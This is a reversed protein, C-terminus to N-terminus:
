QLRILIEVDGSDMSLGAAAQYRAILGASDTVTGSSKEVLSALCEMQLRELALETGAVQARAKGCIDRPLGDMGTKLARRVKRLPGTIGSRFADSLRLAETMVGAPVPRQEAGCWLCWLLVPVDAGDRDQLRLFAERAEVPDYVAIAFDWFREAAKKQTMARNYRM